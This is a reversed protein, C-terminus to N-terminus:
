QDGMFIERVTICQDQDWSECQMIWNVVVFTLVSSILVAAIFIGLKELMSLRGQIVLM